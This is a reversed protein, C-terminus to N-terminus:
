LRTQVEYGGIWGRAVCKPLLQDLAFVDALEAMTAGTQIKNLFDWDVEEIEEIRVEYGHRWIMLRPANEGLDVHQDGDWDAQNVRWIKHVPYASRLLAASAPLNFIIRDVDTPPVEGITAPDLTPEDPANFARHWSWELRAVDPLYPLEAAPEFGGIFAGFEEGYDGLDPSHSPYRYAYRRAMGGFFEEGVLSQCVPYINELARQLTGIVARRYIHLHEASSVGPTSSVFESLTQVARLETGTEFVADRFLAQIESLSIM